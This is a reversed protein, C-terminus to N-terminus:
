MMDQPDVDAQLQLNAPLPWQLATKLLAHLKPRHPSKLLVQMRHRGRVLAIPAPAPGLVEVERPAAKKLREVLDEATGKVDPLSPGSLRLLVLYGYPPYSLERRFVAERRSFGDGDQTGACYIAHHSLSRTQIIVTGPDNARGARGAVQVLLQFTREAARFDQFFLTQDADLVGVLTVGPFDHGKAIMQTGVLIDIERAHMRELLRQLGSFRMSDRDMREVRATPFRESLFRAVQEVGEKEQVFGGGCACSAPCARRHGCMHCVVNDQAKHWTLAVACHPCTEVEGCASCQLRGSYGRRNLFLISQGGAALNKELAEDLPGTIGCSAQYVRMDVTRVAPLQAARPRKTLLLHGWKGSGAHFRAEMSPTASGLVIVAQEKQARVLAFDRAHYFFGEDQKFSGDHEEDVVILGVNSLPAFVASRAGLAIRRRGSALDRWQRAREAQPQASHLVAVQDPFRASFRAGLQPTLAIEPVIIIGNLGRELVEALVQLYVETKGSGTIGELLFPSFGGLAGCLRDRAALQDSTLTLPAQEVPLNQASVASGPRPCKEVRIYGDKKLASLHGGARPHDRLVDAVPVPLNAEQLDCFLRYRVPKRRLADLEGGVPPTVEVVAPEMGVLRDSSEEVTELFGDRIARRIWSETCGARLLTKKAYVRGDAFHGLSGTWPDVVGLYQNPRPRVVRFKQLTYVEDLVPHAARLVEGVPHHYYGAAWLLTEFLREPFVPIGDDLVELVPQTAGAFTSKEPMVYGVCRRRSFRVVVRTGAPPPPEDMHYTFTSTLPFPLAVQLLHRPM